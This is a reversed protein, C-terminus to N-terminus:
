RARSTTARRRLARAGPQARRRQAGARRRAGGDGGGAPAGARLLSRRARRPRRPRALAAGRLDAARPRPAVDGARLRDARPRREDPLYSARMGMAARVAERDAVIALAGDYPVNLWKHADVAWSDAREAGRALHRCSRARPRGCASRATSTCGRATSTAGRRRDRRAPRVRRHRGRGGARLRDDPRDDLTALADARM